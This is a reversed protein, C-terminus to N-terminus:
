YPQSFGGVVLLIEAIRGPLLVVQVLAPRIPRFYRVRLRGSPGSLRWSVSVSCRGRGVLTSLSLSGLRLGTWRAPRDPVRATLLECRM